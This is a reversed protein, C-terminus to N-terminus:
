APKRAPAATFAYEVEAAVLLAPASVAVPVEQGERGCIALAEVGVERGLRAAALAEVAVLIRISIGSEPDDFRLRARRGDCSAEGAAVRDIRLDAAQRLEGADATGPAVFLNTLRPLPASRFDERRGRGASAVGALWASRRCAISSAVRGGEVLVLPTAALGEDDGALSAGLGPASPDDIVFLEASGLTSGPAFAAAAGGPGLECGHGVLEHFLVGAAQPGLLVLAAGPAPRPSDPRNGTLLAPPAADLDLRDATLALRSITGPGARAVLAVRTEERERAGAQTAVRVHRRSATVRLPDLGRDIARRRAREVEAALAATAGAPFRDPRPEPPSEVALEECGSRDLVRWAVGDAALRTTSGRQWCLELRQETFVDAHAARTGELFSREPAALPL